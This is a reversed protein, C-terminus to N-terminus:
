NKAPTSPKRLLGLEAINEIVMDALQEPKMEAGPLCIEANEPPEYPSDLGTFNKLRGARAMKYLGKPDRTECVELPTDVFIELFEDKEFLERAAARESRFPSIFSVLVILGAEVFLKSTESIRRLNEVRDADTFGLDRCLGHRVNDGDLVYTHKGMAHLKKDVLDAITSKGSGSLGTFWLVCPIQKKSSARAAKDIELAHWKINTARRLEHKILGFAVQAGTTRDHLTFSGSDRSKDFPEFSIASELSINGYGIDGPFLKKAAGHEMSRPNLRHKLSSMHAEVQALGLKKDQKLMYNRSPLMPEDAIWSIHVAFQDSSLMPGKQTPADHEKNLSSLLNSLPPGDYWSLQPSITNINDQTSLNVPIIDLLGCPFGASHDSFEEKFEDFREQSWDVLAMNDIVFVIHPVCALCALAKAWFHRKELGFAADIIIVLVEAKSSLITLNFSRNDLTCLEKISGPAISAGAFLESLTKTGSLYPPALLIFRCKDNAPAAMDEASTKIQKGMM